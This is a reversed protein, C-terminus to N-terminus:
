KEKQVQKMAKYPQDQTYRQMYSATIPLVIALSTKHRTIQYDIPDLLSWPFPTAIFHLLYYRLAKSKLLYSSPHFYDLSCHM